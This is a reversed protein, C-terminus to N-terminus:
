RLVSVAEPLPPLGAAPAKLSYTHKTGQESKKGLGLELYVVNDREFFRANAPDKVSAAVWSCTKSLPQTFFRFSM